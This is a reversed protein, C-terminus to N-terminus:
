KRFIILKSFLYNLVVVAVQTIFKAVSDPIGIVDVSVFMIVMDMAGSLLRCGVFATMERVIASFGKVKSQFVWTRNTVYAFAVSVVWSIANAVLYNLGLVSTCVFYVVINVITTLVGFFLYAIIEKYKSLLEKM